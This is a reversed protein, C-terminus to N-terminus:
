KKYVKILSSVFSEALEQRKSYERLVFAQNPQSLNWVEILISPSKSPKLVWLLQPAVDRKVDEVLKWNYYYWFGNDLLQRALKESEKNWQRNDYKISLIKSHDDIKTWSWLLDAHFSLFLNPNHENAITARKTLYEKDGDFSNWVSNDDEGYWIDQFSEQWKVFVRSCPPLDKIDLIWRRNMHHTLIVEAWHARLERAVRYVLDMMVASEYVIVKEKNSEDWYQALWLAWTDLSWHWPDLVFKKGKLESWVIEKPRTIEDVSLSPSSATERPNLFKISYGSKLAGVFKWRIDKDDRIKKILYNDSNEFEKLSHITTYSVDDLIERKEKIKWQDPIWLTDGQYSKIADHISGMDIVLEDNLRIKNVDKINNQEAINDVLIKCLKPDSVVDGDLWLSDKVISSLTAWEWVHITKTSESNWCWAMLTTLVLPTILKKVANKWRWLLTKEKGKGSMESSNKVM